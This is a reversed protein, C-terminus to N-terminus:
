FAFVGAQNFRSEWSNEKRFQATNDLSTRHALAQNVIDTMNSDRDILYVGQGEGRSTMEGFASSLVPLGLARYEYYKIPDVSATLTDKKFPILGVDFQCIARLAEPHPLAPEPRVNNPLPIPPKVYMPGILRLTTDPHSNALAVVLEWDFWHGITGLYGIVLPQVENLPRAEPIEPMREAACANLVLRVDRALHGLRDRLASSSTLVRSVLGAMKRERKAMAHRSWGKYFASYDDMADYFSSIFGGKSLLRLALATPKGIGLVTSSDAFRDVALEVDGWLLCNVVESFPLPEIPLAKPKVVTLWTPIGRAMDGCKPRRVLVDSLTPFRGPYPDIWLVESGTLSHFYRVLEHPRQSFSSWPVPSLYILRM